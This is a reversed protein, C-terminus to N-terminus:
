QRRCIVAHQGAQSDRAKRNFGKAFWKAAQKTVPGYLVKATPKQADIRVVIWQKESASPM